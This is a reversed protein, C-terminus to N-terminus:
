KRSTQEKSIYDLLDIRTIIGSIVTKVNMARPSAGGYNKQETVVLAFSEHDFKGAVDGLTSNMGVKCFNKYLVKSIPDNISAKGGLIKATMNGETVVGKISGDEGIVPVMDFGETKLLDIADKVSVNDQVTLPTKIDLESVKKSDWWHESFSKKMVIKDDTFGNDIMWDDSLAKTMYNRVSDSLVVVCKQGKKLEKAARVACYMASGASGGCLLGETRILKRMMLFSEEDESKEWADMLSRDLVEPIFDYGIGEVLNPMNRRFDNLTDPIALMSGCPDVGVIKCQPVKLNMKKAIGTITGGTGAGAVLMDLSGGCQHIIEEATGDYHALPNAHNSYQDLIHSNPIEANMRRAVSIHSDPSDWAAETPTRVIQAGLAKLVNIKELSMKEPLCIICKYGRIAAALAM